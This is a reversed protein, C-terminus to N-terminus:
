SISDGTFGPRNLIIVALHNVVYAPNKLCYVRDKTASMGSKAFLVSGAPYLKLKYKKATAETVLELSNEKAGELLKDLSGARVFPIGEESFDSSNKPAGQGASVTAIEKLFVLKM